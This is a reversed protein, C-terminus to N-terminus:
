IVGPTRQELAGDCVAGVREVQRDGRRAAVRQRREIRPQRLPRLRHPHPHNPFQNCQWQLEPFVKRGLGRFEKERALVASPNRTPHVQCGRESARLDM